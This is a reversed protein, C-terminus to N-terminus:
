SLGIIEGNVIDIHNASDIGAREAVREIRDLRTARAIEIDSKM